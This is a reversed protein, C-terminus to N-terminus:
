KVWNGIQIIMSILITVVLIDLERISTLAFEYIYRVDIAEVHISGNHKKEHQEKWKRIKEVQNEVGGYKQQRKQYKM